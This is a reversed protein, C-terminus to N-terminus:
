QSKRWNSIDEQDPGFQLRLAFRDDELPERGGIRSRVFEAM